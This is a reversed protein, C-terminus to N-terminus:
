LFLGCFVQLYAHMHYIKKEGASKVKEGPFDSKGWGGRKKGVWTAKEGGLDNKGWRGRREKSRFSMFNESTRRWIYTGNPMTRPLPPTPSTDLAEDGRGARPPGLSRGGGGRASMANVKEWGQIVKGWRTYSKGMRTDNKGM